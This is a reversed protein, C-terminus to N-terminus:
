SFLWRLIVLFTAPSMPEGKEVRRYVSEPIGIQEAAEYRSWESHHRWSSLVEGIKM